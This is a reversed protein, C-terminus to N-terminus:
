LCADVADQAQGVLLSIMWALPLVIGILALDSLVFRPPVDLDAATRERWAGVETLKPFLKQRDAESLKGGMEDWNRVFAKMTDAVAPGELKMDADRWAESGTGDGRSFIQKGSGGLAYEDAINM